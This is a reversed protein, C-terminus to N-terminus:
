VKATAMADIISDVAADKSATADFTYSIWKRSFVDIVNFCYCWSDIGCWIYTMDTQWLQNPATPKFLTRGSKIIEKKTKAPEIWDLKHFIRQIQKRNVPIKLERSVAAAMRRTGYTHRQHGIKQVTESVTRNLPINRLIRSYYWKNHFIGTYSLSKRLSLQETIQKVVTM